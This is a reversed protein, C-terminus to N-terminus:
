AQFLEVASDILKLKEADNLEDAPNRDPFMRQFAVMIVESRYVMQEPEPHDHFMAFEFNDMATTDGGASQAQHLLEKAQRIKDKGTQILNRFQRRYTNLIAEQGAYYLAMCQLFLEAGQVIGENRKIDAEFSELSM